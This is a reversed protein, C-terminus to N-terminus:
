QPKISAAPRTSTPIATNAAVDSRSNTALMREFQPGPLYGASRKGNEFFLTPTGKVGLRQALALVKQTPTECAGPPPTLGSNMFDSLAKSKDTSCLIGNTKVKSDESLIPILFTYMTFNDVTKLSEHMRKCYGCNPDEFSAFVRSGDGKVTKVALELPLESFSIATLKEKRVETLNTRRATDIMQGMILYQGSEDSYVIDQGVIVEFVGKAQTPTVSTVKTGPYLKEISARIETEGAMAIKAAAFAIVGVIVARIIAGRKFSMVVPNSM